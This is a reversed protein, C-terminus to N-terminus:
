PLGPAALRWRYTHDTGTCPTYLRMSARPLFTCRPRCIEGPLSPTPLLQEHPIAHLCTHYSSNTSSKLLVSQSAITSRQFRAIWLVRMRGVYTIAADMMSVM